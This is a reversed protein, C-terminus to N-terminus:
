MIGKRKVESLLFPIFEGLNRNCIFGYTDNCSRILWKGIGLLPNTTMAVCDEQQFFDYTTLIEFWQLIVTTECHHHGVLHDENAYPLERSWTM